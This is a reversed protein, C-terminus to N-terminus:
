EAKPISGYIEVEAIRATGDSGPNNIKLRAFKAKVPDIDIDTVNADNKVYEDAVKWESGDMSYEFVFDTTNLSKDLTDDNDGAHRVIYRSIEYEAGLDFQLWKEEATSSWVDGSPTGNLVVDANSSDSATVKIDPSMALNFALGNAENFLAFFHDGRLIEVKGPSLENLKESLTKINAPTMFWSNGQATFFLPSNGDWAAIDGKWTNVIENIDSTYCPHNPLFAMNGHIQTENAIPYEQPVKALEGGRGWDQYTNGYIYRANESYSQIHQSNVRDWITIVRIGSRELYKNSLSTYADIHEKNTFNVDFGNLEDIVLAYGLGSPGSAFFDNESASTYYSNLIGPAFEILGPSITWNLPVSGRDKDRWLNKMVHQNYQVNDGDSMFLAVYVKNELKPKDPVEPIQIDPDMGMYVTTNDFWDSPITSIGNETGAGIGSREETYWGLAISEGPTMDQFFKVQVAKEEPKENDLWTVAAGAAAALDRINATHENPKLSVIIRHTCDKWYNDYLYTYIEVPTKYELTTLDEVVPLDIGAEKLKENVQPTVPLAKKLGAVTNALNLYHVSKKYDYLVVGSLEDQYKKIIDYKADRDFYNLEFGFEKPWTLSGEGANIPLLFVRTKKSNIIGQFTSMMTKEVHSPYYALKATDLTDAPTSFKPLMRGEPWEMGEEIAPVYSYEVYNNKRNENNDGKNGNNSDDCAVLLTSLAFVLVLIMLIGKRKM